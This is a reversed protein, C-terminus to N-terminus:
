HQSRIEQFGPLVEKPKSVTIFEHDLLWTEVALRWARDADYCTTQTLELTKQRIWEYVERRKRRDFTRAYGRGAAFVECPSRHRLCPRSRHNLTQIDLEAQIALFASPMSPRRLLESKIERNGAEIGGNYQPYHCPSNVPIVFFAELLADILAHNLNKGNDRKLFLPPGHADFLTHLHAAVENGHALALGVLPEFKFRSGLDQVNNLYAKPYAPDPHYETDDMAWILRPVKWTVEHVIRHRERNQRRREEVVFRGLDRRSIRDRHRRYLDGTGETRKRGHRLVRLEERLADLDLPAVKKPGPRGVIDRGRAVRDKWRMLSAYAVGEQVCLTRYALGEAAHRREIADLVM